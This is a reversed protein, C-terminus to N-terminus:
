FLFFIYIYVHIYYLIYIYRIKVFSFDIKPPRATDGLSLEREAVKNRWDNGSFYFQIPNHSEFEWRSCWILHRTYYHTHIYCGRGDRGWCIEKTLFRSTFSSRLWSLRRDPRCETPTNPVCGLWGNGEAVSDSSTTKRNNTDDKTMKGAAM